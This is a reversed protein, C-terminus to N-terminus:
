TINRKKVGGSQWFKKRVGDVKKIVTIPLLYM